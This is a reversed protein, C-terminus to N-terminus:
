KACYISGLFCQQQQLVLIWKHGRTHEHQINPHDHDVGAISAPPPSTMHARGHSTTMVWRMAQGLWKSDCNAVRGDPWCRRLRRAMAGQRSIWARAGRCVRSSGYDMYLHAPQLITFCQIWLTIVIQEKLYKANHCMYILFWITFVCAKLTAKRRPNDNAGCFPYTPVWPWTDLMVLGSGCYLAQLTTRSPQANWWAGSTFYDL